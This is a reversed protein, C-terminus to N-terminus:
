AEMAEMEKAHAAIVKGAAEAPVQEYGHFKCTFTGFGHTLSHLTTSYPLEAGFHNRPAVASVM